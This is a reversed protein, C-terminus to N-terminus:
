RLFGGIEHTREVFGESAAPHDIRQIQDRRVRDHAVFRPVFRTSDSGNRPGQKGISIGIPNCELPDFGRSRIHTDLETRLLPRPTISARNRHVSTANPGNAKFPRRSLSTGASSLRRSGSPDAAQWAYQIPERRPRTTDASLLHPVRGESSQHVKRRPDQRLFPESKRDATEEGQRDAHEGAECADTSTLVSCRYEQGEETAHAPHDGRIKQNAEAHRSEVDDEALCPVEIEIEQDQGKEKHRRAQRAHKHTGHDRLPDGRRSELDKERPNEHGGSESEDQELDPGTPSDGDIREMDAKTEEQTEPEADDRSKEPHGGAFISNRGEDEQEAHRSQGCSCQAGENRDGKLERSEQLM